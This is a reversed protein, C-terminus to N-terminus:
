SYWNASATKIFEKLLEYSKKMLLHKAATDDKYSQVDNPAM